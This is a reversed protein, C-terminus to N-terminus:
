RRDALAPFSSRVRDVVAPEVTATLTTPEDGAAARATGWPDYVTSRGCLTADAAPFSGSGNVAIV